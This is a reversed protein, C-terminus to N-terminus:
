TSDQCALNVCTDDCVIITDDDFTVVIIDKNEECKGKFQERRFKKCKRKIHGPKGYYFCKIEKRSKSKGRLNNYNYDNSHKISKSREWRETILAEINSSIGLEKRRVEENFMNDKVM